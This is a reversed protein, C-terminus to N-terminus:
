YRAKSRYKTTQFDIINHIGLGNRVGNPYEQLPWDFLGCGGMKIPGAALIGVEHRLVAKM